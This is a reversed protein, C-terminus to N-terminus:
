RGNSVHLHTNRENPKFRRHEHSFLVPRYHKLGLTNAISSIINSLDRQRWTALGLEFRFPAFHIPSRSSLFPSHLSLSSFSWCCVCVSVFQDSLLLPFFVSSFSCRGLCAAFTKTEFHDRETWNWLILSLRCHIINFHSGAFSWDLGNLSYRRILTLVLSRTLALLHSHCM